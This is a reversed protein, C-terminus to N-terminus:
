KENWRPKPPKGFLLDSPQYELREALQGLKDSTDKLKATTAEVKALLSRTRGGIQPLKVEDLDKRLGAFLNRAGELTARVEVMTKQVHGETVVKDIQASINKLNTTAAEVNAMIGKMEKSEVFKEIAGVTAKVQESVTKLDLEKIKNVIEEVSGLLRKYESPKSPIVPYESVFDIKPTIELDEPKQLDLNVFVLGTIGTLQLQAVLNKVAEERMSINMIVAILRNDPAIRIDDVRGVTVGRYKVESDKQLGQVSEDFYTVYQKGAQFYRIAGVWIIAVAAILSGAIIFLGVLFKSTKRAM